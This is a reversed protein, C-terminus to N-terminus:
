RQRGPDHALVPQGLAQQDADDPQGPLFDVGLCAAPFVHDGLVDLLPQDFQEAVGDVTGMAVDDGAEGLEADWWASCARRSGTCVISLTAAARGAGTTMSRM